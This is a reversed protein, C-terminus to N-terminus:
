EAEEVILTWRYFGQPPKSWVMAVIRSRERDDFDIPRREREEEYLASGLGGELYAHRVNTVTKIQAIESPVYGWSASL